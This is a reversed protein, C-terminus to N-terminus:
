LMSDCSPCKINIPNLPEMSHYSWYEGNKILRNRCLHNACYNYVTFHNCNSCTVWYKVGNKTEKAQKLLKESGCVLCFMKAVPEPNFGKRNKEDRKKELVNTEIGYQLFMGIARQLEDIYSLQGIPSLYIAGYEHHHERRMDQDWPFMPVEGYFCNEAWDQPTKRTPVAGKSPHLIFVANNGGESYDKEHYLEHIIKSIGGYKNDDIDQYFKADLVFRKRSKLSSSHHDAEVDLVFDPRKGSKLTLEYWLRIRRSVNENLFDISVDTKNNLIQRILSKKWEPEPKYHYKQILVKIIQLLCWREYLNSVNVLGIEDIQQLSLLITEDDTGSMELIKKFKSHAGQYDPNQVFVMSNPFLSDLRVKSAKLKQLINKLIPIKPRLADAVVQMNNQQSKLFFVIKKISVIEKDQEDKEENSLERQWGSEELERILTENRELTEKLNLYKYGGIIKISDIYSLKCNYRKSNTTPSPKDWDFIGSIKYEYGSDILGSTETELTAFGESPRRWPKNLDTKTEIFFTTVIDNSYGEAINIIKFYLTKYHGGFSNECFDATKFTQALSDNIDEFRRKKEEFDFRVAEENLYKVDSYSDLRNQYQKIDSLLRESKYQAVSNLGRIILYVKQVTYHIYRNEPVDLSEIHARSTLFRGDGKTSLEMFTRPVPKNKKRPELRQTERLEVKPKALIKEVHEIFKSIARLASEDVQGYETLKGAGRIYSSEDLILEWFDNRFCKLYLELEDYSFTSASIDIECSISGIKLNVKGVSRYIRSQWRNARKDWTDGEIWWTRSTVPDNVPLLQIENGDNLLFCPAQKVNKDLIRIAFQGARDNDITSYCIADLRYKNLSLEEIDIPKDCEVIKKAHSQDRWFINIYKAEFPAAM